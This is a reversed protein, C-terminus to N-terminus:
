PKKRLALELPSGLEVVFRHAIGFKVDIDGTTFPMSEKGALIKGDEQFEWYQLASGESDVLIISLIPVGQESDTNNRINGSINYVPHDKDTEMEEISVDVMSFAESPPSGIFAPYITILVITIAVSALGLATAILSLPAKKGRKVPVNSGKPIPKPKTNIEEVMKGLDDLEEQSKEVGKAQWTHKCKACRVTRGKTGISTDPVAYRTKCEPCQLIM